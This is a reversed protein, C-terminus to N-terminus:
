PTMGAPAYGALRSLKGINERDRIPRRGDPIVIVLEGEHGPKVRAGLEEAPCLRRPRRTAPDLGAM